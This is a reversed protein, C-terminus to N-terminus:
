AAAVRGLRLTVNPQAFHIEAAAFADILPPARSAASVDSAVAHGYTQRPSRAGDSRRQGGGSNEVASYLRLRDGPGGAAGSRHTEPEGLTATYSMLHELRYDFM